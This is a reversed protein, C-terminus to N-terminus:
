PSVKSIVSFESRVVHGIEASQLPRASGVHLDARGVVVELAIALGHLSEFLRGREGVVPVLRFLPHDEPSCEPRYRNGRRIACGLLWM